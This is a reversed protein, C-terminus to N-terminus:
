HGLLSIVSLLSIVWMTGKIKKQDGAISTIIVYSIFGFSLGISISYSLPMMVITIFAPIAVEFDNFDIVKINKFMYVGVVILAPATAFAPVVGILPTFLLAVLFLISTVLSTLGTRAGSAIGSAAEVYCTTTSTGLMAGVTTALADAELLRGIKRIKGKEDVMNAEIACAMITGISEFLDVFMLSFIAGITSLKIAGLIDMKFAITKITPPTSVLQKPLEVLGFVMGLITTIPIGFLLSGKVNKIELITILFLGFLWLVVSLNLNGLGIMTAPNSVILGLNQLGIFTIFLGIGASMAVRLSVPIADVVKERIGWFAFVLFIVGSLFVVGLAEQWTLGKGIVLTYTFFANLGMGPAMAFPANVWLASVATGFFSALCTATILAGKDMGTASLINPNVFIIYAM